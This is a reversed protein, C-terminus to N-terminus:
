VTNNNSKKNIKVRHNIYKKNITITRNLKRKYQKYVM